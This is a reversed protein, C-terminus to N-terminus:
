FQRYYRKLDVVKPAPEWYTSKSKDFTKPFAHPALARRVLGMPTFLLFFILAFIVNGVVIGICCAIFYWAVYFPKAIQPILWLIVGAALGILGLYLFFPKWAGTSYRSITGLVIAIIPFGIILSKAFKRKEPLSPNWSVDKFPNMM